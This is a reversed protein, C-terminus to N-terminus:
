HSYNKSNLITIHANIQNRFFIKSFKIPDFPSMIRVLFFSFFVSEHDMGFCIYFQLPNEFHPVIYECAVYMLLNKHIYNISKIFIYQSSVCYTVSSFLKVAHRDLADSICNAFRHTDM